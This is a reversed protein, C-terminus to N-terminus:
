VEGGEGSESPLLNCKMQQKLAGAEQRWCFPLDISEDRPQWWPLAYPGEHCRESQLLAGLYHLRYHILKHSPFSLEECRFLTGGLLRRLRIYILPADKTSLQVLTRDCRVVKIHHGLMVLFFLLVGACTM